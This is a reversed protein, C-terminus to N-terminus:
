HPATLSLLQHQEAKLRAFSTRVYDLYATNPSRPAATTAPSLNPDTLRQQIFEDIRLRLLRRQFKPTETLPGDM